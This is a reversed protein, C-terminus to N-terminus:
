VMGRKLNSSTLYASVVYRFSDMGPKSSAILREVRALLKSCVPCLTGRVCKGCSTMGSCCSHDHDIQPRDTSGCMECPEALMRALMKADLTYRQATTYHNPCLGDGRSGPRGCSPVLCPSYRGEPKTRIKPRLPEGRRQQLYHGMCLGKAQIPSDCGKYGCEM